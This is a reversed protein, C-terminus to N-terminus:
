SSLHSLSETMSSPKTCILAPLSPSYTLYLRRIRNSYCLKKIETLAEIHVASEPAILRRIDIYVVDMTHNQRGCPLISLDLIKQRVDAFSTGWIM